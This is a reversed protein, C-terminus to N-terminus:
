AKETFNQCYFLNIQNKVIEIVKWTNKRKNEYKTHSMLM